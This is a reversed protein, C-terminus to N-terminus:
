ESKKLNREEEGEKKEITNDQVNKNEPILKIINNNLTMLQQLINQNIDASAKLSTKIDSSMNNISTNMTKIDSSMNDISTNMTKIDSSMNNISTNMTKIDSSMNNISTNMNQVDISLKDIKGGLGTVIGGYETLLNKVIDEVAILFFLKFYSKRNIINSSNLADFGNQNHNNNNAKSKEKDSNKSNNNNNDLDLINNINEDSNDEKKINENSKQNEKNKNTEGMKNGGEAEMEKTEGVLEVRIKEEQVSGDKNNSKDLAENENEKQQIKEKEESPLEFYSINNNNSNPKKSM